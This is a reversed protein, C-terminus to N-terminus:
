EGNIAYVKTGMRIYHIVGGERISFSGGRGMEYNLGSLWRVRSQDAEYAYEGSSKLSNDFERVEYKGEPLLVLDYVYSPDTFPVLYVRYTGLRPGDDANASGSVAAFMVAALLLAWRATRGMALWSLAKDIGVM